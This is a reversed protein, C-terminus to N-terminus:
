TIFGSFHLAGLTNRFCLMALKGEKSTEISVKGPGKKEKFVKFKEVSVQHLKNFPNEPPPNSKIKLKTEKAEEKPKFAEPDEDGSGDEEAKKAPSVGFGGANGFSFNNGSFM